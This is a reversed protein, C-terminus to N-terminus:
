WKKMHTRLKGILKNNKLSYVGNVELRNTFIDERTGQSGTILKEGLVTWVITMENKNLAKIFDKKRVLLCSISKNNVCPDFCVLENNNNLFEGEKSSYKLKMNQYIWDSPKYFSITEEKSYDYTEEWLFNEAPLIAKCSFGGYINEDRSNINIWPYSDRKESNIMYKFGPSWYYERSFLEYRTETEPMRKGMFDMKSGWKAFKQLEDKNILYSRIQYWLQKNVRNYMDEGIQKPEEWGLYTELILWEIKNNDNVNIIKKPDPLGTQKFLWYKHSLHWDKNGYNTKYWWNKLNFNRYREKGTTSIVMSADIDRVYPDWPGDYKEEIDERFSWDDYKVFNDSVRALIEYFTIWQYKKGIREEQAYYRSNNQRSVNRDFRGHKEVDYGLETFIKKVALNSLRQPSLKKWSSLGSQFVYRGFDGYSGLGNSHETIMSDLIENQSHFYDKFDKAQSDLHLRKIQDNTPLHKPFKSKYPPRIKKIDIELKLKNYLTFEIVNRAYDRLLIDPYVYKKNFVFNYIYESLEKLKEKQSTRLACGYAVCYLRNLVYPDNVKEFDKLLQLLIPIRNELLCILAKTAGDRLHRNVSTLFWAITKASLRISEDTYHLKDKENWGWDILRTISHNANPYKEHIYQTWWADRDALSHKMLNKHLLDANLYNDPRSSITLITDWFDDDSNIAYKNIYSILKSTITDARRWILSQTFAKIVTEFNEAYPVMEYFECNLMEPVQISLAEIILSNYLCSSESETYHFLEGNKAFANELSLKNNYRKLIFSAILHYVFREYVFYIGDKHSTYGGKSDREYFIEKTLLGESILAPLLGLKNSYKKLLPEILNTATEYEIFSQESELIHKALLIVAQYVINISSDYYLNEPKSLKINISNIYYNIISSIGEMGDPVRKLGSKSISECFLKLFLPNSFEPHLMPVGPLVIGYNNFFLKVADYEVGDFGHHTLRNTHEETLESEPVILPVYSDRVTLVLGIWKYKRIRNIFGKIYAPWIIKGEGENLADIFIIIRSGQIQGSSNLAGLFEDLSCSIDLKAKIQQWPDDRTLFQQGLLLISFKGELLRIKALDAVLHSKGMGAKGDLILIPNNFLVSASSQIFEHLKPLPTLVKRIEYNYNKFRQIDQDSTYQIDKIKKKQRLNEIKMEISSHLAWLTEQLNRIIKNIEIFNVEEMERYDIRDYERKLYATLKLIKKEYKNAKKKYNFSKNVKTLFEDYVLEFRKKYKEDRAIGDFVKAINLELNLEPTYRKGLDLIAQELKEQFWSFNFWEKHFWFYFMGANEPKQLREILDSSWWAEFSVKMKNKSALNEWKKVREKWRKLMTNQNKGSDSPDIPIAIIYRKIKKHIKLMTNVSRDIQKFRDETLTTTFFKAQWGIENGNKLTVYCEIGGDPKGLRQFSKKNVINENRALQCVLEEFAESQSNRLTRIQEFSFSNM